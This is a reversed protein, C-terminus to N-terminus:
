SSWRHKWAVLAPVVLLGTAMWAAVVPNWHLQRLGHDGVRLLLYYGLGVGVAVLVGRAVGQGSRTRGLPWALLALLPVALPIALRRHLALLHFRVEHGQSRRETIAERLAGPALEFPERGRGRLLPLPLDVTYSEFRARAYGQDLRLHLEGDTLRAVVRGGDLEVQGTRALVVEDGDDSWLLVDRLTGDPDRGAADLVTDDFALSLGGRGQNLQPGSLEAIQQRAQHRGWPEAWAGCLYTVATVALALALTPWALQLPTAGLCRAAEVAGDGELRTVAAVLGAFFGLPLAVSLLPTIMAGILPMLLAPPLSRVLPDAAMRAAVGLLAIGLITALALLVPLATSRLVLLALRRSM